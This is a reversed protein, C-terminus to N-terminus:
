QVSFCKAFVYIALWLDVVDVNLNLLNKVFPVESGMSCAVRWPPKVVPRPSPPGRLRLSAPLSIDESCHRGSALSACGRGNVRAGACRGGCVSRSFM